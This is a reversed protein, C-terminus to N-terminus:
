CRTVRIRMTEDKFGLWQADDRIMAIERGNWGPARYAMASGEQLFRHDVLHAFDFHPGASRVYRTRASTVSDGGLLLAM